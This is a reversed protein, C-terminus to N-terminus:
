GSAPDLCFEPERACVCVCMCVCLCTASRPQPPKRFLAAVADDSVDEVLLDKWSPKSAVALGDLCGTRSSPDVFRAKIGAALDPHSM